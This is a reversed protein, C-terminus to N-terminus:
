RRFPQRKWYTLTRWLWEMPGIRFAQMWYVSFAVLLAYIIVALLLGAAKSVQGFLGMGYGYFILTCIVSQLLYVTLAMQGASALPRLRREWSPRQYLLTIAALYFLCLMPAGVTQGLQALVLAGSPEYRNGATESFYTFMLNGAVGLALGWWLLKRFYSRSAALDHFKRTRAFWVGILFMGFVSPALFLYGSTIFNLDRLRQRTIEGFSGGAYVRMAEDAQQQYLRGQEAFTQDIMQAAEPEMRGLGLLGATAAYFLVPLLLFIVAWVLLTRPRAKRFLLLGFGLVAYLSLIDGVWFLTAHVLGFALLVLLRRTYIVGFREGRSQLRELLLAFGLGFLLSFLSYFKSEALFRVLLTGVQDPAAMEGLVPPALIRQVPYSFLEMNVLLIGLLAFGRLVDIVVLREAPPTPVANTGTM